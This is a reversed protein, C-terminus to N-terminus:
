TNVNQSKLVTEKYTKFVSCIHHIEMYLPKHRSTQLIFNSRQNDALALAQQILFFLCRKRFETRSPKGVEAYAVAQEM